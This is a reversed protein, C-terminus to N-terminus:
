PHPIEEFDIYEGEDDDFVKKRKGGKPPSAEQREAQEYADTGAETTAPGGAPQGGFADTVKRKWGFLTSVIKSVIAIGIFLVALVIFFIFGILHFM